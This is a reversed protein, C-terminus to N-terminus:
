ARGSVNAPFNEEVEIIERIHPLDWKERIRCHIGNDPFAFQGIIKGAIENMM